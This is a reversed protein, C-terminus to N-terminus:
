GRPHSFERQPAQVHSFLWAHGFRNEKSYQPAGRIRVDAEAVEARQKRPEAKNLSDFAAVVDKSPFADRLNEVKLRPARQRFRILDLLHTFDKNLM